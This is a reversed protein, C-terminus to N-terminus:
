SGFESLEDGEDIMCRFILTLLAILEDKVKDAYDPM